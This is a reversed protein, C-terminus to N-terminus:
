LKRDAAPISELFEPHFAAKLDVAEPIVNYKLLFDHAKQV